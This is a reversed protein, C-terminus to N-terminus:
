SVDQCLWGDERYLFVSQLLIIQRLVLKSVMIKQQDEFEVPVDHIDPFRPYDETMSEFNLDRRKPTQFILLTLHRVIYILLHKNIELWLLQAYYTSKTAWFLSMREKHLDLLHKRKDERKRGKNRNGKTGWREIKQQNIGDSWCNLM